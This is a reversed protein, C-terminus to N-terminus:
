PTRICQRAPACRAPVVPTEQSICAEPISWAVAVAAALDKRGTTLGNPWKSSINAFNSVASLVCARIVNSGMAATAYPPM